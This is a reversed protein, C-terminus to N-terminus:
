ISWVGYDPCFGHGITTVVQGSDVDTIEEVDYSCKTAPDDIARKCKPCKLAVGDYSDEQRQVNKARKAFYMQEIMAEDMDLLIALNMMFHWADIWEGRAAELNVHRSTAWPKWGVENLLEHAEDLLALIHEKIQLATDQENLGEAPWTKMVQVQLQRQADLMEQLM